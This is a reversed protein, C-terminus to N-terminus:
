TRGRTASMPQAAWAVGAPSLRPRISALASAAATALAPPVRQHRRGCWRTCAPLGQGVPMGARCRESRLHMAWVRLMGQGSGRLPPPVRCQCRPAKPPATHGASAARLHPRAPPLRFGTGGAEVGPSSSSGAPSGMQGRSQRVLSDHSLTSPPGQVILMHLKRGRSAQNERRAIQSPVSVAGARRGCLAHWWRGGQLGAGQGQQAAQSQVQCVGQWSGLLCQQPQGHM